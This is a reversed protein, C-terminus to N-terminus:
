APTERRRTARRSTGQLNGQTWSLQLVSGAEVTLGLTPATPAGVYSLQNSVGAMYISAAELPTLARRWVGLDDIGSQGASSQPYLGTPDQGITAVNTSNINGIGVVSSGAERNQHAVVGDLYIQAGNVRDIVYVLNHWAGDNITGQDGYVGVGVDASDFVSFGWGGPWGATTGVTQGFSPEFCFGPASFTSGVVDCFFPLDNGVYNGPLQVWMSVTFSVNSGFQLDPRVGVSAYNANTTSSDVTTQYSFAQGIQGSIYDNTLLPAGGSAENTADNGRGTADLLNGDFTLHM